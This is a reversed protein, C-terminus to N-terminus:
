QPVKLMSEFSTMETLVLHRFCIQFNMYFVQSHHVPSIFSVIFVKGRNACNEQVEIQLKAERTGM